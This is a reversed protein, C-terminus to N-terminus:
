KVVGKLDFLEKRIYTIQQESLNIKDFFDDIDVSILDSIDKVKFTGILVESVFCKIIFNKRLRTCYIKVIKNKFTYEGMLQENMLKLAFLVVGSIMLFFCTNLIILSITM